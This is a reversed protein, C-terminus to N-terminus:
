ETTYKSRCRTLTEIHDMVWTNLLARNMDGDAYNLKLPHVFHLSKNYVQWFYNSGLVTTDNVRGPLYVGPIYVFNSELDLMRSITPVAIELFVGHKYFIYALKQFQASFKRPIYFIDSRGRFCKAQGVGNSKLTKVFTLSNSDERHRAEHIIENYSKQCKQIGWSSDWFYWKKKVGTGNFTVPVKPGEWIRKRDFPVFNWYNLLVDDSILLYGDIGVTDEYKESARALCAYAFFGKRIYLYDVSQETRNSTGKEGCFMIHKFAPSYLKRLLPISSYLPHNYVIVLVIGSFAGKLGCSVQPRRYNRSWKWSGYSHEKEM